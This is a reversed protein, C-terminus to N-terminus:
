KVPNEVESDSSSVDESAGSDSDSGSGRVSVEKTAKSKNPLAYKFYKIKEKEEGGSGKRKERSNDIPRMSRAAAVYVATMSENKMENEEEEGKGDLYFLPEDDELKKEEVKLVLQEDVEMSDDVLSRAHYKLVSDNFLKIGQKELKLLSKILAKPSSGSIGGAKEFMGKLSSIWKTIQSPLHSNSFASTYRTARKQDGNKRFLEIAELTVVLRTIAISKVHETPQHITEPKLFSYEVLIIADYLINRLLILDEPGMFATVPLAPQLLMRMLMEFFYFNHFSSISAVVWSRLENELVVMSETGIRIDLCIKLLFTEVMVVGALYNVDFGRESILGCVENSVLPLFSQLNVNRDIWISALDEVPIVLDVDIAESEENFGKCCCMSIYGIIVEVLSKIKINVKKEGKSGSDKGLVEVVLKYVEFVIPALLAISKSSNCPSSCSSVLQFLDNITSLRNLPDEKAFSHSRFSLASYVWISELPPDLKAQVLDYFKDIFGSFNPTEKQTEALLDEMSQKLSIQYNKGILFNPKQSNMSAKLSLAM